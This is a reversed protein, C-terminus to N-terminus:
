SRARSLGAVVLRATYRAHSALDDGNGLSHELAKPHAFAVLTSFVAAAAERLPTETEFAGEARGDAIIKEATERMAARHREVSSWRHDMAEKVMDHLQRENFLLAVSESLLTQYLRELRRPAPTEAQAVRWLEADMRTLIAGCVGECIALKSPFFKYIYATSVRLDGAIDAVTTRAYGNRRFRVEAADVIRGHM